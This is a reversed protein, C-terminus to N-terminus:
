AAHAAIRAVMERVQDRDLRQLALLAHHGLTPWPAEFEPRTTYVLLLPATAGQENFLAAPVGQVASPLSHVSSIQLPPPAQVETALESGHESPLKQVVPSTQTPPAHM